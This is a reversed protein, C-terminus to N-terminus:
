PKTTPEHAAQITLTRLAALSDNATKYKGLQIGLTVQDMAVLTRDLYGALQEDSIPLANVALTSYDLKWIGNQRVLKIKAAGFDAVGTDGSETVKVDAPVSTPGVMDPLQDLAGQGYAEGYAKRFNFVSACTRAQNDVVMQQGHTSYAVHNELYNVDGNKIAAAIKVLTQRATLNEPSATSASSSVSLAANKDLALAMGATIALGLASIAVVTKVHTWFMMRIAGKMIGMSAGSAAPAFATASATSIVHPPAQQIAQTALMSALGPVTSEAGARSLLNRLKTIAREVRKRAAAPSLGMDAAVAEHSKDQLFRLVIAQRDKGGLRNIAEDLIPSMENWDAAPEPPVFSTNMEAARKEHRLRNNQM